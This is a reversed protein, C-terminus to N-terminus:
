LVDRLLDAGAAERLMAGVTLGLQRAEARPGSAQARALRESAPDALIARLHLRDGDGAAPQAHVAIPTHCSAGLHELVAREATIRALTAQHTVRGCLGTMMEDGARCVLAIVGQGVAPLMEDPTMIRMAPTLLGLRKLGAAALITADVEGRALKDLRTPVNGRFNVVAIQPNLARALARRRPASTGLRAGVPLADLSPALPSIFVDRPDEGELVGALTVDSGFLTPVDKLSHVALDIRRDALAQDLERTFLGKGGYDALPRVKDVDGAVQLPVIEVADEAALTADAGGLAQRVADAQWLALRSGRTGLRLPAM